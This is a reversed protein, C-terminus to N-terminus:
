ISVASESILEAHERIDPVSRGDYSVKYGSEAAFDCTPVVISPMIALVQKM